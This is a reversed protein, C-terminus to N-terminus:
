VSLPPPRPLAASSPFSYLSHLLALALALCAQRNAQRHCAPWTPGGNKFLWWPTSASQWGGLGRPRGSYRLSAESFETHLSPAAASSAMSAVSARSADAHLALPPAAAAPWSPEAALDAPKDQAAGSFASSPAQPPEAAPRAAAAPPEPPPEAGAPGAAEPGMVAPAPDAAAATGAALSVRVSSAETDDEVDVTVGALEQTAAMSCRRGSVAPSLSCRYAPPAQMVPLAISACQFLEGDASPGSAFLQAEDAAAPHAM